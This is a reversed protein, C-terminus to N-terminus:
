DVSSPARSLYDALVTHGAARALDAPTRGDDTAVSPDARHELLFQSLELSGNQATTHLPAFGRQQRANVDAGAAVLIRAIEPEPGALAAHLATVGSPNRAAVSVDAGHQLLLEVSERRGFFAALALPTFGDPAWANASSPDAALLHALRDLVGAAAAEHITLSEPPITRALDDAIAQQHHYLAALL